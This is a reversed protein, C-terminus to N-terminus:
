EKSHNHKMRLASLEFLLCGSVLAFAAVTLSFAIFLHSKDFRTWTNPSDTMIRWMSGFAFFVLILAIGVVFMRVVKM